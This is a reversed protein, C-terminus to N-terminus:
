LIFQIWQANQFYAWKTTATYVVMHVNFERGYNQWLRSPQRKLVDSLIVDRLSPKESLVCYCIWLGLVYVHNQHFTHAM